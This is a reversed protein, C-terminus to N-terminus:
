LQNKFTLAKSKSLAKLYNIQIENKNLYVLAEPVTRPSCSKIEEHIKDFDEKSIEIYNDCKDCVLCYKKSSPIVPIFFLSIWVRVTCLEWFSLEHCHNCEKESVTGFVKKTIKNSKLILM